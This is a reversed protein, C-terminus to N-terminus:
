KIEGAKKEKDCARDSIEDVYSDSMEYQLSEILERLAERLIVLEQCVPCDEMFLALRLPHHHHDKTKM